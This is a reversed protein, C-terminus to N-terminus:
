SRNKLLQFHHEKFTEASNELQSLQTLLKCKDRVILDHKNPYFEVKGSGTLRYRCVFSEFADIEPNDITILVTDIFTGKNKTAKLDCEVGHTDYYWGYCFMGVSDLEMIILNQHEIVPL